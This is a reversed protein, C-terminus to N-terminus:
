WMCSKSINEAIVSCQCALFKVEGFKVVSPIPYTLSRLSRRTSHNTLRSLSGKTPVLCVSMDKISEAELMKGQITSRFAVFRFPRQRVLISVRVLFCGSLKILKIHSRPNSSTRLSPEIIRGRWREHRMRKVGPLTETSRKATLFFFKDFGVQWLVIGLM